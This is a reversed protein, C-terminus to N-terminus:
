TEGGSARMRTRALLYLFYPAGIIATVVGCPVEIPAFLSRGVLDASAVLLAGIAAAVPLLGEHAPGVLRRALHPAMLGVFGIPGASAVAAAALGVGVLLVLLRPATVRSGLGRAIEDGLSLVNLQPALLLAAPLLLALWLTLARVHEWSRGYVSGTLWLLAQGARYFDAFTVVLTTLASTVSALGIGILILRLPSDGGRWALGYILAFALTAGVLAAPPVLMVSSGPVLVILSVAALGAGSSVGIIEPAALPNRTVGQVITGAVALAAGVMLALLVRPLRFEFIVLRYDDNGSGLGLFTSVVDVASIPYEGHGISVIFVLLSLALLTVITLPARRDLRLSLPLRQSRLILWGDRM